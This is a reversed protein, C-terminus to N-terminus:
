SLVLRCLKYIWRISFIFIVLGLAALIVAGFLDGGRDVAPAEMISYRIAGAGYFEILIGVVTGLSCFGLGAIRLLQGSRSSGVSESYDLKHREVPTEVPKDEMM